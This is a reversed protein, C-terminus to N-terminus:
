DSLYIDSFSMEYFVAECLSPHQIGLNLESSERVAFM